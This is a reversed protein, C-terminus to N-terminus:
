QPTSRYQYNPPVEPFPIILYEFIDAHPIYKGRRREKKLVTVGQDRLRTKDCTLYDVLSRLSWQSIWYM